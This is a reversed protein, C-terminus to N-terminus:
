IFGKDLLEQLQTSLEQMESPALRYPAKAVPAAGPVLDTRFEMRKQPPLGLLDEPFVEPFEKVAPIDEPKPEKTEKDVIHALIAICWKRLCKQAVEARNKPLWDMNVVVDHSGLDVPLLFNGSETVVNPDHRAEHARITFERGRKTRRPAIKELTGWTVMISAVQFEVMTTEAKTTAITEEETPIDQGVICGQQTGCRDCKPRLCRGEHHFECEDYRPKTGLYVKGKAKNAAGYAKIDRPPNVERRKNTNSNDHSVQTDKKLNSFKRKNDGSSEVHTVKKNIESKSFKGMHLAEETHTVSLNIAEAITPPKAATVMSLIQPALGWIFREIRKFELEVLYPVVMSLDHFRQLYEAVKPGDMKLNWFKTELKQIEARSCYKKRMLEKLEDWSFAYAATEGLTQVQLNCWSLAGDLFLRSIYTVRQELACKSMRLMSDTKEVWRVFAVAGGTGDFNLPKCDLFQKYTCGTPPNNGSTGGSHESRNAEHQAIAQSLCEQLEAETRPLTNTDTDRGPPM